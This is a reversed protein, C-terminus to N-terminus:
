VDSLLEKDETIYITLNMSCSLKNTKPLRSEIALKSICITAPYDELAAAFDIIANYPAAMKINAKKETVSAADVNKEDSLIAIEKEFVVSKL